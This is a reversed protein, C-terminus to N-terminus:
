CDTGYGFLRSEPVVNHCEVEEVAAQFLRRRSYGCEAVVALETGNRKLEARKSGLM